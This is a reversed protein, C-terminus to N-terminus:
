SLAESRRFVKRPRFSRGSVEGLAVLGDADAAATPGELEDHGQLEIAQGTVLRHVDDRDVRVIPMGVAGLAQLPTRWATDTAQDMATLHAAADVEFPGVSIRRLATLHAGVGLAEGLDRALARVYTGSSCRVRFRVLPLDVSVLGIEHVTVPVPALTVKEGRRARRHAAEGAVKKASYAPPVQLSEGALAELAAALDGQGLGEWGSRRATVEGELDLTDTTVGLRAEAVYTKALGTLADSLRTASGVVLVLLGSALPDLTGTHGVRRTGLAKRARAVVDHSTPGTPKDVLLIGGEEESRTM